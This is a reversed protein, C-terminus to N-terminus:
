ILKNSTYHCTLALLFNIQTFIMKDHFGGYGMTYLAHLNLDMLLHGSKVLEKGPLFTKIKCALIVVYHVLDLFWDTINFFISLIKLNSSSQRTKTRSESQPRGWGWCRSQPEKRCVHLTPVTVINKQVVMTYNFFVLFISM